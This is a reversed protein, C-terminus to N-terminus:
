ALLGVGWATWCSSTLSPWASAWTVRSPSPKRRIRVEGTSRSGGAVGAGLGESAGAVALAVADPDAVAVAVALGDGVALAEALGATLAGLEDGATTGPVGNSSRSFASM